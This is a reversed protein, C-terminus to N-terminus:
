KQHLTKAQYTAIHMNNQLQFAKPTLGYCKKFVYIFHSLSTYGVTLSIQLVSYDTSSLLKKAYEMRRRILYDIITTGTLQKFQAILSSFAIPYNAYIEKATKDIYELNDIRYKIDSAYNNKEVSSFTEEKVSLLLLINQLLLTVINSRSGKTCTKLTEALSRIYSFEIDTLPIKTLGNNRNFISSLTPSILLSSKIFYEASIALNFHHPDEATCKVPYFINHIYHPSIIYICKEDLLQTKNNFFHSINSKLPLIIEYYDNHSHYQVSQLYSWHFYYFNEYANHHSLLLDLSNKM